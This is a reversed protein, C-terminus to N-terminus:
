EDPLLLRVKSGLAKAIEPLRHISVHRGFEWHYWTPAPVGAKKSVEDVTMKRAERLMRIRAGVRGAFTQLDQTKSPRGM